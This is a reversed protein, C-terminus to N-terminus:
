PNLSMRRIVPRRNAKKEEYTQSGMGLGAATGLAINLGTAEAFGPDSTALDTLDQLLMPTFRLLIEKPITKKNGYQDTYAGITGPKSMDTDMGKGTFEKATLLDHVLGTMPSEKNALFNGATQLPNQIRNNTRGALMRAMAVIPQQFGAWPDLTKNGFRVKGFDASLVDSNAGMLREGRKPKSFWNMDKDDLPHGLVRGGALTGLTGTTAGLAAIGVLSKLTELRMGKPLDMFLKPNGLLGLRSTILRPSWLVTNLEPAFKELRGLGGRGTAYNIYKSIARTSDTPTRTINGEADKVATFAKHGLGEAQKIMSDFTDSRLKNLFGTYARESGGVVERLPKPLNHVYNHAFAEEANLVDDSKSLFLGSERGLLYNPRNEISQMASNYYEKNGLYKFMEKSANAWEKRHILGAGQRLPASLDVSSSLAKMTNATKALKIGTANLGGHLEIIQDAFGKGFVDNLLSLENRQPVEGGELIKFLAVRSRVKEPETINAGKIGDFLKDVDTDELQLPSRNIKEYEGKMKGLSRAAGERGGEKVGASAAFRRAQEQKYLGEQKTRLGKSSQLSDMLKDITPGLPGTRPPLRKGGGGLGGPSWLGGQMEIINDPGTEELSKPKIFDEFSPAEFSLNEGYKPQAKSLERIYDNYGTIAKRAEQENLKYKSMVRNTAFKLRDVIGPKIEGKKFLSQGAGFLDRSDADTFLVDVADNKGRMIRARQNPPANEITYKKPLEAIPEKVVEPVIPEEKIIEPEVVEDAKFSEPLDPPKDEIKPIVAEEKSTVVEAERPRSAILETEKKPIENGIDITSGTEPGFKERIIRAGRWPEYENKYNIADSFRKAELAKDAVATPTSRNLSEPAKYPKESSRRLAQGANIDLTDAAAEGGYFRPGPGLMRNAPIEPKIPLEGPQASSVFGSPTGLPRVYDEYLSKLFGGAYTEPQSKWVPLTSTESEPTGLVKTINHEKLLAEYEPSTGTLLREGIERVKPNALIGKAFDFGRDILGKKPPEEIKDEVFSSPMTTKDNEKDDDAIFSKPLGQPM